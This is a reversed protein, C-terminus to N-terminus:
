ESGHLLLGARDGIKRPSQMSVSARYLAVDIYQHSCAEKPDFIDWMMTMASLIKQLSCSFLKVQESLHSLVM